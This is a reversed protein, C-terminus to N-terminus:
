FETQEVLLNWDDADMGGSQCREIAAILEDHIGDEDGDKWIQHAIEIANKITHDKLVELLRNNNTLRNYEAQALQLDYEPLEMSTVQEYWDNDNVMAVIKAIRGAIESRLDKANTGDHRAAWELIITPQDEQECRYGLQWSGIMAAVTEIDPDEEGDELYSYTVALWTLAEDSWETTAIALGLEVIDEDCADLGIEHTKNIEEVVMAKMQDMTMTVDEKNVMTNMNDAVMGNVQNMKNAM